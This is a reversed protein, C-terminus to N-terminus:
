KQIPTGFSAFEVQGNAAFLLTIQYDGEPVFCGFWSTVVSLYSYGTCWWPWVETMAYLRQDKSHYLHTSLSRVPGVVTRDSLRVRLGQCALWQSFAPLRLTELKRLFFENTDVYSRSEFWEPDVSKSVEGACQVNGSEFTWVEPAILRCDWIQPAAVVACDGVLQAGKEEAQALGGLVVFTLCVLLAAVVQVFYGARQTNRWFAIM